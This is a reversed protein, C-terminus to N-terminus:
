YIFRKATIVKLVRQTEQRGVRVSVVHHRHVVLQVSFDPFHITLVYVKELSHSPVVIELNSEVVHWASLRERINRSNRIMEVNRGVVGKLRKQVGPNLVM